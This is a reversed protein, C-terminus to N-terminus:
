VTMEQPGGESLLGQQPLSRPHLSHLGSIHTGEGDAQRLRLCSCLHLLSSSHPLCSEAPSFNENFGKTTAFLPWPRPGCLWLIPTLPAPPQTLSPWRYMQRRLGGPLSADNVLARPGCNCVPERQAPEEGGSTFTM